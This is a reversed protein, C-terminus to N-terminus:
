QLCRAPNSQVKASRVQAFLSWKRIRKGFFVLVWPVISLATAIGGLLGGARAEGLHSFLVTAVLPFTGGFLNRCFSQAALASSAYPGYTDAIYNFTALYVSYIGITAVGIATAPVAPHVDPRSLFGFLFLGLPLLTTTICTFYLRSEPVDVPFHRRMFLWLKSDANRTSSDMNPQWQPTGLLKDQWICIATSVIGGIILSSFAPSSNFPSMNYVREYVIAISEFTLFLVAWAFSLWLAFFFVVPETFLLRFPRCVSVTVMHSVSVLVEDEKVVWRIRQLRLPPKDGAATDVNPLWAGYCGISELEEYWKNLARAKRSLLVSGRSERMFVLLLVATAGTLIAMHWFVWEWGTGTEESGRFHVIAAAAMPGVGTGVIGAGSFVAMPTNRNEKAWLDTIFGGVMTSFVSAGVGTFFRAVLMGALSTVGGCAIQSATYVVASAAFVPYRGNIESFPALFMPSIAFGASFTTLGCLVALHSADFAIDM